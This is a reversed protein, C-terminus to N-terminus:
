ISLQNNRYTKFSMFLIILINAIVFFLKLHSQSEIDTLFLDWQDGTFSQTNKVTYNLRLFNITRFILYLVLWITQVTLVRIGLRKVGKIQNKKVSWLILPILIALFPNVIFLIPSLAIILLFNSNEGPQWELLYNPSVSLATSLRKLSDGSPNKGENEIRQVTRLSLGSIEALAEQSYGKSKRLAKVKNALQNNDMTWTKQYDM